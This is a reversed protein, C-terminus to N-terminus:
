SDELATLDVVDAISYYQSRIKEHVLSLVKLLTSMLKMRMETDRFLCMEDHRSVANEVTCKLSCFALVLHTRGTLTDARSIGVLHATVTQTYAVNKLTELSFVLSVLLTMQLHELSQAPSIEFAEFLCLLAPHFANFIEALEGDHVALNLDVLQETGALGNKALASLARHEIYVEAAIREDGGTVCNTCTSACTEANTWVLDAIDIANHLSVACTYTCSWEGCLEEILGALGDTIETM